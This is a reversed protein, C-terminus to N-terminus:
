TKLGEVLWRALREALPKPNDAHKAILTILQEGAVTFLQVLMEDDSEVQAANEGGGEHAEDEAENDHM